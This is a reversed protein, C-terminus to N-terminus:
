KLLEKWDENDSVTEFMNSKYSEITVYSMVDTIKVTLVDSVVQHLSFEQRKKWKKQNLYGWLEAETVDEYGILHFEELKSEIVPQIITKQEDSIISNMNVVGKRVRMCFIYALL